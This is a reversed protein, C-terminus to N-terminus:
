RRLIGAIEKRLAPDYHIIMAYYGISVVGAVVLLILIPAGLRAAVILPISIVFAISFFRVYELLGFRYSIGSIKLLYLNMGGWFLVGTISYLVLAVVPDGSLGGIILVIVRSILILINFSLDIAQKELVYFISGLPSAIFVFLVWPALIGAYQGAVSWQPGLVLSFLEPGIILLLFMPFMALSILRQQVERVINEISGSRNKEECARQFFVRSTAVGIVGVPLLVVMNAVSFYGVVTSNFFFVLLLPAIQTSITNALSSWTSFLPFKKYKIAMKKLGDITVARFLSIDNIMQPLLPVLAACSGLLWGAILGFATASNLGTAAQATRTVVTNVVQAMATRGFQKRRSSWYNGVSYISTVFVALPTLFLYSSIQPANLVAGIEEAFLILITGTIVSVSIILIVSLVLINASDDDEKPLLIARDYSLAAFAVIISSISLFLQLIGFDGPLYIRTIIPTLLFGILQAIVSGSVLKLVNRLFTPM